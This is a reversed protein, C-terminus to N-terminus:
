KVYITASKNLDAAILSENTYKKVVQMYTSRHKVWRFIYKGMMENRVRKVFKRHRKRKFGKYVTYVYRDKCLVSLDEGNRM